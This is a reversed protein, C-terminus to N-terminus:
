RYLAKVRGWTAPSVSSPLWDVLKMMYEPWTYPSQQVVGVGQSYWASPSGLGSQGFRGAFRGTVDFELGSPSRLMEYPIFQGVGFSYFDGAPVSVMGETYVRWTFDTSDSCGTGDLHCWQVDETTWTKELELPSDIFQIPPIYAAEFDHMLNVAGHLYLNGDVDSTWFNEFVDALTDSEAIEEHRLVTLVGLVEFTGEIVASRSQGVENEYHWETGLDLPHYNISSAPSAFCLLLVLWAGHRWIISGM